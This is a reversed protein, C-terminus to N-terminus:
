YSNLMQRLEESNPSYQLAVEKTIKKANVMDKLCQNMTQMGYQRSTQMVSYLQHTEAKRIINRVSPTSILIELAPILGKGVAKPVLQQAVIAKLVGSLQTRAQNQQHPPFLDIIRDITQPADITHMTTLVLHGTEAATMTMAMSETDRVEGVLIVDPDQRLVHKLADAFSKTDSGVERQTVISKKNVHLYEIPDEITVIHCDKQANIIDIMSALTTSKGAGTIGTIIVLGSNAMALEGLIPPLGLERLSQIKNPIVRFAAGVTGRAMFVNVRFRSVDPIEYAIDLEYENEFTERQSQTLISYILRKSQEPSLKESTIATLDGNIRLVPPHNAGIHLDSAQREVAIRLLQNIDLEPM